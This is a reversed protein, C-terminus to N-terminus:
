FRLSIYSSKVNNKPSGFKLIAINKDEQRM